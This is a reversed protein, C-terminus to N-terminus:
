FKERFLLYILAYSLDYAGVLFGLIDITGLWALSLFMTGTIIRAISTM